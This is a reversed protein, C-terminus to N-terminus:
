PQRRRGAGGARGLSAAVQVDRLREPQLLAGAPRRAPGRGELEVAVAALSEEAAGYEPGVLDNLDEGLVGGEEGDVLVEREVVAAGLEPEVNRQTEPQAREDDALPVLLQEDEVVAGLLRRRRSEVARTAGILGEEAKAPLVAGMKVIPPIQGRGATEGDHRNKTKRAAVTVDRAHPM